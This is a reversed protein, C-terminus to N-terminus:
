VDEGSGWGFETHLYCVVAVVEGAACEPAWALLKGGASRRLQEPLHSM